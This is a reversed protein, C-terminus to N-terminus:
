AAFSLAPQFPKYLQNSKRINDGAWLPQLNDLAWCRRFDIDDPSSFNFASVPIIHDIHWGSPGYNSWSMGETFGSELHKRLEESSYGLIEETSRRNKAKGVMERIRRSIRYHLLFSPSEKIRRSVYERKNKNKLERHKEPHREKWRKKNLLQRRAYEPDTAMRLKRKANDKHRSLKIAEQRQEETYITRRPKGERRRDHYDSTRKIKRCPPCLGDIVLHWKAGM